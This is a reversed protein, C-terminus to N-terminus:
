DERLVKAILRVFWSERKPSGEDILGLKRMRKELVGLVESMSQFRADAKKDACVFVFTEFWQPIGRDKDRFRPLVQHMHAKAMDLYDSKDFPRKGTAMEFAVIGLSYIDARGDVRHNQFQEPAMYFPTGVTEVSLTLTGGIDMERALGFDAVKVTGSSDILINEPKLDRHVVGCSHAYAVGTAIDRLIRLITPFDLPADEDHIRDDLSGGNIYEMALFSRGAETRGFDLTRVVNPHDFERTLRLEKEFRARAKDDKHDLPAFMKLAVIQDGNKRDCAKFVVGAAGTGVQELLRYRGAVLSERETLGAAETDTDPPRGAM